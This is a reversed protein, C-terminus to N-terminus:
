KDVKLLKASGFFAENRLYLLFIGTGWDRGDLMFPREMSIEPITGESLAKGNLAHVTYQLARLPEHGPALGIMFMAKSPNPYISLGAQRLEKAVPETIGTLDNYAKRFSPVGHGSANDPRDHLHSAQEIIARMEGPLLTPFAELLCAALGTIIPTAYSTGSGVSINGSGSVIATQVGKAMVNPKLQGSANPGRGSQPSPNKSQDAAGVTLVSDADGPTLIYHWPQAGENGASVVTLIGKSVAANCARASYTTHGDLDSYTYSDTPDDFTNYGLSCNILDAGISDARELAAALNDEEIAQETHEDDTAYLAYRARPATGVFVGPINGAMCSLTQMGHIGGTYVDDHNYIFNWTDDIRNGLRISDFAAWHDVGVFGVDVVAILVDNGQYGLEHLFEGDCLHTQAWASGYYNADWATPRGSEPVPGGEPRPHLGDPFLGVQKIHGVYPLDRLTPLQATDQLLVVCSNSWKSTVHLKGDGIALVEDIYARAVPLDSSDIAIGLKERRALAKPSLFLSPASLSFTTPAKDVFGIRYAYQAPATQAWSGWAM